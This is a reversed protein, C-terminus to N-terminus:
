RSVQWRLRRQRADLLRILAIRFPPPHRHLSAIAVLCLRGRVLGEVPSGHLDEPDFSLGDRVRPEAEVLDLHHCLEAQHGFRCGRSNMTLPRGRERVM